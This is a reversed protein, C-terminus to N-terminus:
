IHVVYSLSYLIFFCTKFSLEGANHMSSVIEALRRKKTQPTLAPAEHEDEDEEGEELQRIDREGPNALALSKIAAPSKTNAVRNHLPLELERSPATQAIKLSGSSSSRSVSNEEDKGKCKTAVSSSGGTVDVVTSSVSALLFTEEVVRALAWKCYILWDPHLLYVPKNGPRKNNLVSQAKRTQLNICILHTVNPSLDLSVTAGLSQALKYLLHQEPHPENVPIIGSFVVVCGSLISSKFNNLIRAVSPNSHSSASYYQAHIGRLVHLCRPLQDDAETFEASNQPAMKLLKGPPDHLSVVPCPSSTNSPLSAMMGPQNNVEALMLSPNSHFYIYPRVLLLQESQAGRWVDERDDLIVAMSSDNLFIKQLSKNINVVRDDTRAVIRNNIYKGQPDLIKVVAEAYRRTGLLFILCLCCIYILKLPM